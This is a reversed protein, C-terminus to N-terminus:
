EGKISNKSQLATIAMTLVIEDASTGRSLDNIPKRLGQLIPGVAKVGALRQVLKYAINGCNLDPFVLVNARGELNNSSGCKMSAVSPVIAADAQIEGDMILMSDMRRAIKYARKIKQIQENDVNVDAKTSYSLFAVRPKINLINEALKASLVGIEALEQDTPDEIVACDAFVMLGNEGYPFGERVEMIFCSSVKSINPMTKIIQFAPRMVDASKYVSGAVVGDADDSYLMMTAYYMPNKLTEMALEETMGKNKRMEYLDHAYMERRKSETEVDIIEINKQAKKSFRNELLKKNGIIVVKCIDLLAAKEAAEIIREDNGEPLVITKGSGQAKKIIGEFVDRKVEKKKFLM